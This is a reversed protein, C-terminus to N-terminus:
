RAPTPRPLVVAAQLGGGPGHRLVAQGGSASALRQVIALGLGTGGTTVFRDFAREMEADSMGPGEDTVSVEVHLPGTTAAVTIMSGEPSVELANSLLNDLIQELAGDSTLVPCPATARPRLEVAREDALPTWMAIRDEIVNAADVVTPEARGEGIRALQLLAEILRTLREVERLAADVDDRHEADVGVELSELRLRLATLPTRLQHSVDGSFAREHELMRGVRASMVNFAAALERVEPPGESETVQEGLDGRAMRSSAAQLERLPRGVNRALAWGVVGSAALVSASLIGLRMWNSEVREDLTSRPYTIRVAGLV